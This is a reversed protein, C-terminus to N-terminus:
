KGDDAARGPLEGDYIALQYALYAVFAANHMLDEPIAYEYVDLNTHWSVSYTNIMDQLVTFSPIGLADFVEHDTYNTNQITLYDSDDAAFPQLMRKLIPRIQNNGQLYLGRARGTGLDQNIYFVLREAGPMMEGTFVDGVSNNAYGISGNYGDEEGGWLAIRITRRPELNLAKLIRMAEMMVASGAGNDTAGTGSHWSDFHAGIMVIEDSLLPDTGPIDGIINVNHAPNHEFRTRLNLKLIPKAGKLLMRKIRYFHENAVVFQPVPKIDGARIYETGEVHVIGHLHDSPEIIAGVGEDILFQDLSLEDQVDGDEGIRQLLSEESLDPPNLAIEPDPTATEFKEGRRLDDISFRESPPEFSPRNPEGNDVLVIKGRLSGEFTMLDEIDDVLVPLGSVMGDTGRTFAKPYAILPMYRPSIMEANVSELSWGRYEDGFSELRVNELGWKELRGQAWRAAEFYDSTGLLRPGYVDSLFSLTEMVQSHKTSELRIRQSDENFSDTNTVDAIAFTSNGLLSLGLQLTLLCVATSRTSSRVTESAGFYQNVAANHTSTHM